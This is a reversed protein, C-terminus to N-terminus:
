NYSGHTKFLKTPVVYSEPFWTTGIGKQDRNLEIKCSGARPKWRCNM